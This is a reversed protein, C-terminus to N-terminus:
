EEIGWYCGAGQWRRTLTEREWKAGECITLREVKERAHDRRASAPIVHCDTLVGAISIQSNLM